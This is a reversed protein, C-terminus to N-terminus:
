EEDVPCADALMTLLQGDTITRKTAAWMSFEEPIDKKFTAKDENMTRLNEVAWAIFEAPSVDQLQEVLSEQVSDEIVAIEEIAEATDEPIDEVVLEEEIPESIAEVVLEPETSTEMVPEVIAVEVQEESYTETIATIKSPQNFATDLMTQWNNFERVYGSREFKVQVAGAWSYLITQEGRIGPRAFTMIINPATTNVRIKTIEGKVGGLITCTIPFRVAKNINAELEKAFESYTKINM